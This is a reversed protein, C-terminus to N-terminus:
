FCNQFPQHYYGIDDFYYHVQSKNLSMAVTLSNVPADGERLTNNPVVYDPCAARIAYM